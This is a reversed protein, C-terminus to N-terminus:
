HSQDNKHEEELKLYEELSISKFTIRDGAQLLSPPTAQPRFLEIPTRGILQWGGPTSIPYIGTQNGAIGVSRASVKLRPSNRRPAAIKKSLGGLYPFGPSFGIMYVTYTPSTHIDIVEEATLNNIRAVTELDPGWEGGYYVPIEIIKSSIPQDLNLSALLEHIKKCATEYPTIQKDTSDILSLPDYVITITTFAPIYEIIWPCPHKDLYTTLYKIIHHTEITITEGLEIILGHDSLPFLQYRL